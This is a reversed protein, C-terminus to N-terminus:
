PDVRRINEVFYTLCDRTATDTGFDSEVTIQRKERRRSQDKIANDGATITINISAAVSLTTWDRIVQDTSIDDIRYRATTPAEAAGTSANRFQAVAVFSSGEKTAPRPLRIYTDPM